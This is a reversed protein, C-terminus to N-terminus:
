PRGAEVVPAAPDAAGDASRAVPFTVVFRTGKGDFPEIVVTAGHEEVIRRVIALGLGTGRSKTTVFPDFIKAAVDPAIGPGDDQVLLRLRDPAEEVWVWVHGGDEMAQYANTILNTLLESVHVRDAVLVTHEVRSRFTIGPPAPTAALVEELLQGLDFAEPDPSRPRVFDTLDQALTAARAVEREALDVTSSVEPTLEGGYARVLYLANTVATLPNRLEHGVVSAMEGVAALRERRVLADQADRLDRLSADLAATRQAVLVEAYDRRRSLVDVVSAVLLAILVGAGLIVWPLARGMAGILPSREVGVVLWTASGVTIKVTDRPHGAPLSAVNSFALTAPDPSLSGYVAFDILSAPGSGTGKLHHPVTLQEYVALGAPAIPPGLAFGLVVNGGPASRARPVVQGRAAAIQRAVPGTIVQGKSYALGVASLVAYGSGFRRVLVISANPNAKLNFTITSFQSPDDVALTAATAVSDMPAVYLNGVVDQMLAAAQGTEGVLLQHDHEDSARDTLVCGVVSVAMVLLAVGVAALSPIRRHGDVGM